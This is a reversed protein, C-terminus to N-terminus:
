PLTLPRRIQQTAQRAILVFDDWYSGGHAAGLRPPAGVRDLDPGIEAVLTRAKSARLYPSLGDLDPHQLWRLIRTLARFGSIWDFHLPLDSPSGFGLVTSWGDRAAAYYRQEGHSSTRVVGAQELQQLAERVNRSAFGADAVILRGPVREARVTLLTRMVEARVGLGFMTRLRLAFAIPRDLRPLQSKGSPTFLGREWGYRLFTEDLPGRPRGVSRFLPQTDDTAEFLQVPPRRATVALAPKVLARDVHDVCLGRLRHVSVGAQNLALWDLVEDFLRPDDRAIELTFLLLAEPDAARQEPEAPETGSVGLQAWQEWAFGLLQQTLERRLTEALM